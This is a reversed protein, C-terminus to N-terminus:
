GLGYEEEIKARLQSPTLVKDKKKSRPKGSNKTKVNKSKPIANKKKYSEVDYNRIKNAVDEGLIKILAEESTGNTVAQMNRMFEARVLDMVDHAKVNKFGANYARIMERRISDLTVDNKPLGSQDLADTMEEILAKTDADRLAQAEQRAKEEAARKQESEFKQVKAKYEALEKQEPTMMEQQLQEYIIDEAIKKADIGLRPDSLVKKPDAKLMQIFAEAQKRAKVGEQLRKDSVKRLQYNRILEDEDVEVEEGDLKVKYKKALKEIIDDSPQETEQGTEGTEGSNGEVIEENADLAGNDEVTEAAFPDGAGMNEDGM